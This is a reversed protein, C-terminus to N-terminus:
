HAATQQPQGSNEMFSGPAESRMLCVVGRPVYRILARKGTGFKAPVDVPEDALWEAGHEIYESFEDLVLGVDGVLADVLPKGMGRSVTEAIEVARNVVVGRLIALATAREAFPLASWAQQATRARAVIAPIQQEITVPVTGIVKGTAPDVASHMRGSSASNTATAKARRVRSEKTKAVTM